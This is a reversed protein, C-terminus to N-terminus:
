SIFETRLLLMDVYKTFQHVAVLWHFNRPYIPHTFTLPPSNLWGFLAMRHNHYDQLSLFIM